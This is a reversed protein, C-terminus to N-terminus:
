PQGQSTHLYRDPLILRGGSTADFFHEPMSTKGVYIDYAYRVAGELRSKYHEPTDDDPYTREKLIHLAKAIPGESYSWTQFPDHGPSTSDQLAHLAVALDPLGKSKDNRARAANAAQLASRVLLNSMAIYKGREKKEDLGARVIGTMAHEASQSPDQHQDIESQMAKLVERDAAGMQPTVANDIAMQHIASWLPGDQSTWGLATPAGALAVLTSLLCQAM